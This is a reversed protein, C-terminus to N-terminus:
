QGSPLVTVEGALRERDADTAATGTEYYHKMGAAVQVLQDEMIPLIIWNGIVEGFGGWPMEFSLSLEIQTGVGQQALQYRFEVRKFPVMPQEGEHLEIVFGQGESWEIVTEELFDGDEDYVRRHAGVGGRVESVIETREIDPVYNHALSFDELNHWAQELPLSAQVTVAARQMEAWAAVPLMLTLAIVGRFVQKTAM